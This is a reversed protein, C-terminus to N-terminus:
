PVPQFHHHLVVAVARRRRLTFMEKIRKIGARRRPAASTQAQGSGPTQGALVAAVHTEVVNRAARRPKNETQGEGDGLRFGMARWGISGRMSRVQALEPRNKGKSQFA